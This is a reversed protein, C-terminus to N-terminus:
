RLAFKISRVSFLKYAKAFFGSFSAQQIFRLLVKEKEKRKEKENHSLKTIVFFFFFVLMDLKDCPIAHFIGRAIELWNTIHKEPDTIMVKNDVIDLSVKSKMLSIDVLCNTSMESM